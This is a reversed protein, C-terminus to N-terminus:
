KDGAGQVLLELVAVVGIKAGIPIADLDVQYDPNNIREIGDLLRKRDAPDYWRLNIKLL